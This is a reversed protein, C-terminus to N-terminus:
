AEVASKEDATDLEMERLRKTVFHGRTELVRRLKELPRQVDEPVKATEADVPGLPFDRVLEMTGSNAVRRALFEAELLLGAWEGGMHAARLHSCANRLAFGSAEGDGNWSKLCASAFQRHAERIESEHVTLQAKAESHFDLPIDEGRIARAYGAHRFKLSPSSEFFNSALRFITKSKNSSLGLEALAGQDLDENAIAALLLWRRAEDPDIGKAEASELVRLLEQYVLVRPDSLWLGPASRLSAQQEILQADCDWVELKEFAWNLTFMVPPTPSAFVRNVLDPPLPASLKANRMEFYTRTDAPEEVLSLFDLTQIVVSKGVAPSTRPRSSILWIVGPPPDRLVSPILDSGPALVVQDAAEVLLVEHRGAEVLRPSLLRLLEELRSEPRDAFRKEWDAPEMFAHKLCLQEYLHRAIEGPSRPNVGTKPLFYRVPDRGDNRWARVLQSMAVSKGRGMEGVVLLFGSQMRSLKREVERIFRTRHVEYESKPLEAVDRAAGLTWRQNSPVLARNIAMELNDAAVIALRGFGEDPDIHYSLAGVGITKMRGTVATTDQRGAVIVTHIAPFAQRAVSVLKELLGGVAQWSHNEDLAATVAVGLLRPDNNNMFLDRMAMQFIGGCSDHGLAGLPMEMQKQLRVHWRVDVERGDHRPWQGSLSKAARSLAEKWFSDCEMLAMARHPFLVGGNPDAGPLLDLTLVAPCGQNNGDEDEVVLLLPCVRTRIPRIDDPQAIASDPLGPPRRRLWREITRLFALPLPEGGTTERLDQGTCEGISTQRVLEGIAMILRARSYQFATLAEVSPPEGHGGLHLWERFREPWETFDPPEDHATSTGTAM